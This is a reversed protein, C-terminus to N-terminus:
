TLQKVVNKCPPPVVNMSPAGRAHLPGVVLQNLANLVFHTPYFFDM